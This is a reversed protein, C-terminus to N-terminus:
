VMVVETLGEGGALICACVEKSRSERMEGLLTHKRVQDMSDVYCVMKSILQNMEEQVSVM